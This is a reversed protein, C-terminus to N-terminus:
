KSLIISLATGSLITWVEAIEANAIRLVCLYVVGM